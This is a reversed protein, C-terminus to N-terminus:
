LLSIRTQEHLQVLSCQFTLMGCLLCKSPLSNMFMKDQVSCFIQLIIFMTAEMQPSFKSMYKDKSM